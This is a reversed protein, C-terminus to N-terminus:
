GFAFRGRLGVERCLVIVIIIIRNGWRRSLSRGISTKIVTSITSGLLAYAACGGIVVNVHAHPDANADSNAKSKGQAAIAGIGQEELWGGGDEVLIPVKASTGSHSWISHIVVIRHVHRLLRSSILSDLLDLVNVLLVVVLAGTVFTTRPALVDVTSVTRYPLRCKLPRVRRWRGAETAELRIHRSSTARRVVASVASM